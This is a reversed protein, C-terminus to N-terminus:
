LLEQNKLWDIDVVDKLISFIKHYSKLQEKKEIYIQTFKKSQGAIDENLISLKKNVKDELIRIKETFM